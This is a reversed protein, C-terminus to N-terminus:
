WGELFKQKMYKIATNNPIYVYIAVITRSIINQNKWQFNQNRDAGVDKHTHM